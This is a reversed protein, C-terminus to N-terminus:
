GAAYARRVFDWLERSLHGGSAVEPGETEFMRVMSRQIDADGGSMEDVLARWRRTLEQVRPEAPDAGRQREAEMAAILEAWAEQGRRLGEDGLQARREELKVRQEPTYYKEMRNMAEMTEILDDASPEHARDLADLVLTLRFHLREQRRMREEVQALQRRVLASADFAESDLCAAIDPLPVGLRRMAVIRYLRRVDADTYLRQGAESRGPALLGVDEYHRLARVTLGTAAALEGIRRTTNAM